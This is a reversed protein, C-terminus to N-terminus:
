PPLAAPKLRGAIDTASDPRDDGHAFPASYQATVGAEAAVNLNRQPSGCDCLTPFVFRHLFQPLISLTGLAASTQGLGGLLLIRM